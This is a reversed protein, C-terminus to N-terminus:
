LDAKDDNFEGYQPRTHGCRHPDHFGIYLFFPQQDTQSGQFFKRALEKMFTINRGVQLISHHDQETYSFDFPYVQFFLINQEMAKSDYRM